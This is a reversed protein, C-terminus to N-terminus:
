KKEPNLRFINKPKKLRNELQDCREESGVLIVLGDPGTLDLMELDSDSDGASILPPASGILQRYAEVKGAGVTVPPEVVDGIVRGYKSDERIVPKLGFIRSFPIDFYHNVVWQTSYMNTASIVYITYGLFDLYNVVAAMVPNIRPVPIRRGELELYDCDEQEGLEMVYCTAELLRRFPIGKMATLVRTYAEVKGKEELLTEYDKWTLPIPTNDITVPGEQEEIRLQAFTADGIDGILLTNDMDFVVIKEKKPLNGYKEDVRDLQELLAAPIAATMHDTCSYDM